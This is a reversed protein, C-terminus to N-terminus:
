GRRDRGEWPLSALEAVRQAVLLARLRTVDRRQPRTVSERDLRGWAKVHEVITLTPDCLWSYHKGQDKCYAVLSAAITEDAGRMHQREQVDLLDNQWEYVPAPSDYWCLTAVASPFLSPNKMLVLPMAPNFWGIGDFDHTLSYELVPLPLSPNLLLRGRNRQHEAANRWWERVAPKDIFRSPRVTEQWWAQLAEANMSTSRAENPTFGFAEELPYASM